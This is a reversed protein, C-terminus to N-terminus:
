QPDNSCLAAPCSFLSLPVTTRSISTLPLQLLLISTRAAHVQTAQEQPPWSARTHGSVAMSRSSSSRSGYYAKPMSSGHKQWLLPLEWM